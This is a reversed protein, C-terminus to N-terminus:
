QSRSCPVVDPGAPDVQGHGAALGTGASTATVALEQVLTVLKPQAGAREATKCSASTNLSAPPRPVQGASSTAERDDVAVEEADPVGLIGKQDRRDEVQALRGKRADAEVGIV